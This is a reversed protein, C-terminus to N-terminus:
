KTDVEIMAALSPLRGSFRPQSTKSHLTIMADDALMIFTRFTTDDSRWKGGISVEADDISIRFAARM